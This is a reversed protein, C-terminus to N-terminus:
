VSCSDSSHQKSGQLSLSESSCGGPLRLMDSSGSSLGGLLVAVILFLNNPSM